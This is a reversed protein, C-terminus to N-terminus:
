RGSDRDRNRKSKKRSKSKEKKTEKKLPQEGAVQENSQQTPSVNSDTTESPAAADRVLAPQEEQKLVKKPAKINKESGNKKSLGLDGKMDAGAMKYTGRQRNNTGDRGEGNHDSLIAPSGAESTTTETVASSNGRGSGVKKGNMDAPQNAEGSQQVVSPKSAPENTASGSQVAGNERAAGTSKRGDLTSHMKKGGFSREREAAAKKEAERLEKKSESEQAIALSSCFALALVILIYQLTKM